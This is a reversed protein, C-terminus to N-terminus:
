FRNHSIFRLSARASRARQRVLQGLGGPADLGIGRVQLGEFALEFRGAVRLQTGVFAHLEGLLRQIRHTGLQGPQLALKGTQPIAPANQFAPQGLELTIVGLPAALEIGQGGVALAPAPQELVCGYPRLLRFGAMALNAFAQGLGFLGQTGGIGGGRGHAALEVVGLLLDANFLSV